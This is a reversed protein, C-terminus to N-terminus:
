SFMAGPLRPWRRPLITPIERIFKALHEHSQEILQEKERPDFADAAAAKLSKSMELDLMERIDAPLDPRKGLIELYDVAM